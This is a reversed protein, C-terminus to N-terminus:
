APLRIDPHEPSADSPPTSEETEWPLPECLREYLTVLNTAMERAEAMTLEEGEEEKYIRIFERLSEDSLQM